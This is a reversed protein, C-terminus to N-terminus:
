VERHSPKSHWTDVCCEAGCHLKLVLAVDCHITRNQAKEFPQPKEMTERQAQAKRCPVLLCIQVQAHQPARRLLVNKGWRGQVLVTISRAGRRRM